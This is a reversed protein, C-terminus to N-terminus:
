SCLAKAKDIASSSGSLSFSYAVETNRASTAEVKLDSGKRLAATIANEDDNSAFVESGAAYMNWSNGSVIAKAPVDERMSFSTRLSNQPQRSSRFYTVFFHVDGHQVSKPAKDEAATTAYCVAEGNATDKYVAWDKYGAVYDFASAQGTLGALILGSVIIQKM